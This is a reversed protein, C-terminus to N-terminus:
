ATGLLLRPYRELSKGFPKQVTAGTRLYIMTEQRTLACRRQLLDETISCFARRTLNAVYVITKQTHQILMQSGPSATNNTSSDLPSEFYATLASSCISVPVNATRPQTIKGDSETLTTLQFILRAKCRLRTISNRAPLLASMGARAPLQDF